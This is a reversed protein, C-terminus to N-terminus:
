EGISFGLAQSVSLTNLSPCVNQVSGITAAQAQIQFGILSQDCPLPLPYSAAGGSLVALNTAVPNVILCTGCPLRPTSLGIGLLFAGLGAQADTTSVHFGFTANGIGPSGSLAFTMAAGCGASLVTTTPQAHTAWLFGRIDGDVPFGQSGGTCVLMAQVSDTGTDFGISLAPQRQLGSDPLSTQVGCTLCGSRTFSRVQVVSTLFGTAQEWAVTYKSGLLAVCPNSEDVGITGVVGATATPAGFASGNWTYQAISVDRDGVGRQYELAMLFDTGDGDIDPHRLDPGNINGIAITGGQLVGTRSVAQLFAFYYLNPKAEFTIAIRPGASKSVRPRAATVQNSLTVLGGLTPVGTAAVTYSRLRLGDVSGQLAFAIVGQGAGTPDGSLDPATYSGSPSSAVAFNTIAAVNGDIVAGEITWMSFVSAGQQYVVVCRNSGTHYAIRPARSLTNAASAVPLLLSQTGTATTSRVMVDTQGNSVAREFVVLYRQQQAHYTVHPASDVEFGSTFSVVTGLVPDLVLPLAAHDVFSAPLSLEVADGVRRIAGRARVGNADIGTVTGMHVLTQGDRVFDLGGDAAPVALEGLGGLRCRVVLDGRGPLADFVFSQELDADRLEYRERITTSRDYVAVDGVVAPTDGLDCPLVTTGRQISQLSLQLPAVAAADRGLVPTFHAGDAGFRVLYNSGCGLLGAGDERLGHGIQLGRATTVATPATPTQALPLACTLALVSLSEFLKHNSNM